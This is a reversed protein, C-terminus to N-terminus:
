KKPNARNMVAKLDESDYNGTALIKELLPTFRYDSKLVSLKPIAEAWWQKRVEPNAVKDISAAIKSLVLDATRFYKNTRTYPDDTIFFKAQEAKKALAVARAMSASEGTLSAYRPIRSNFELHARGQETQPGFIPIDWGGVAAGAREFANGSAPFDQNLKKLDSLLSNGMDVDTIMTDRTKKGGGAPINVKNNTLWAKVGDQLSKEVDGIDKYGLGVMTGENAIDKSILEPNLARPGLIKMYELHMRTEAENAALRERLAMNDRASADKVMGLYTQVDLKNQLQAIQSKEKSAEIAGHTAMFESIRGPATAAQLAKAQAIAEDTASRPMAMITPQGLIDLTIPSGPAPPQAQLQPMGPIVMPGQPGSVTTPAGMGTTSMYTGPAAEPNQKIFEFAKRGEEAMSQKFQLAHMQQELDLREQAQKSQVEFRKMIDDIEQQRQKIAEKRNVMQSATEAMNTQQAQGALFAQIVPSLGGM